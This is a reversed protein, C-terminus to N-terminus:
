GPFVRMLKSVRDGFATLDEHQFPLRIPCHAIHLTGAAHICPRLDAQLRSDISSIRACGCVRVQPFQCIGVHRRFLFIFGELRQEFALGRVLWTQQLDTHVGIEVLDAGIWAVGVQHAPGTEWPRALM